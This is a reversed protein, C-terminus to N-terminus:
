TNAMDALKAAKACDPFSKEYKYFATNRVSAYKEPHLTSM